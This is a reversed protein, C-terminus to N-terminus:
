VAETKIDILKQLDGLNKCRLVEINKLRIGYSKEIAVIIGVHRLSDWGPIESATTADNIDMNVLNLVSSITQKLKDSIM